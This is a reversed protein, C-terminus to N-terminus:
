SDLRRHYESMLKSEFPQPINLSLCMQHWNQNLIENQNQIKKHACIM